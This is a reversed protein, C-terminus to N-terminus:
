SRSGPRPCCAGAPSRRASPRRAAEAPQDAERPFRLRRHADGRGRFRHHRPGVDDGGAHHAARQGGVGEAAHHRRHRADLHRAAGPRPADGARALARDARERRPARRLGRRAPDRVATRPHRSRRRRRPDPERVNAPRRNLPLRRLPLVISVNAGHPKVNEVCSARRPARRRDEERDRAGPGNGEAEHHRLARLDRGM